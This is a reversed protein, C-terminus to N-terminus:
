HGNPSTAAPLYSQLLFTDRLNGHAKYSKEAKEEEPQNCNSM